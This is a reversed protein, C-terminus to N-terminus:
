MLGLFLWALGEWDQPAATIRRPAPKWVPASPHSLGRDMEAVAGLISVPTPRSPTIGLPRWPLASQRGGGLGMSHAVRM